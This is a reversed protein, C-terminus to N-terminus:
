NIHRSSVLVEVKNPQSLLLMLTIFDDVGGDHDFVVRAPLSDGTYDRSSSGLLSSHSSLAAAHAVIFLVLIVAFIKIVNQRMM